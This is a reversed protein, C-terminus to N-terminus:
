KSPSPANVPKVKKTPPKKMDLDANPRAAQAVPSLAIATGARASRVMAEMIRVDALGQLASPEPDTGDLICQSFHVIEPAFQDRKTSVATKAKGDITVTTKIEGAYEYAPDLRIDGKTGVVRFESVDAAGQSSTFQAVRNRPFRLVATTMEDVNGFREDTGFVQHSYVNTPEDQFVYRAANLCYIGMDFLAGGGHEQKTRIDGERVQHCFVSSFIRAEGIEGARVREVADLNAHEFHLRYAIMLKVGCQRTVAIMAQCDEETVAMPKECLVHAGARAATETMPRHMDNPLAIYVADVRADAVIREVEDYSGTCEVDYKKRLVALKEPDSSVLAVLESN